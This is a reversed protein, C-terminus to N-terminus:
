VETTALSSYHGKNAASSTMAPLKMGSQVPMTNNAGVEEQGEVLGNNNEHGGLVYNSQKERSTRMTKLCVHITLLLATLAAFIVMMSLSSYGNTQYLATTAGGGPASHQAIPATATAQNAATTSKSQSTTGITATTSTSASKQATPGPYM